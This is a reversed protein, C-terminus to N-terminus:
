GVKEAGCLNINIISSTVPNNRLTSPYVKVPLLESMKM